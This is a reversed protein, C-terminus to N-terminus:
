AACFNTDRISFLDSRVMDSVMCMCHSRMCMGMMGNAFSHGKKM